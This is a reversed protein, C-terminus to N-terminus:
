ALDADSSTKHKGHPYTFHCQFAFLSISLIFINSLLLNLFPYALTNSGRHFDQKLFFLRAHSLPPIHAHSVYTCTNQTCAQRSTHASQQLDDAVLNHWHLLLVDRQLLQWNPSCAREAHLLNRSVFHRHQFIFCQHSNSMKVPYTGCYPLSRGSSRQTQLSCSWPRKPFSYLWRRWSRSAATSSPQYPLASLGCMKEQLKTLSADKYLMSHPKTKMAPQHPYWSWRATCIVTWNTIDLVFGWRFLKSSGPCCTITMGRHGDHASQHTKKKSFGSM